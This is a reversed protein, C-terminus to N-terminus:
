IIWIKIVWIDIRYQNWNTYLMTLCIRDFSSDKGLVENKNLFASEELSSFCVGGPFKVFKVDCPELKTLNARNFRVVEESPLSFLKSHKVALRLSLCPHCCTPIWQLLTLSLQNKPHKNKESSLTSNWKCPQILIYINRLLSNQYRCLHQKKIATGVLVPFFHECVCM